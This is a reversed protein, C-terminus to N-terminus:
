RLDPLRLRAQVAFVLVITALVGAASVALYALWRLSRRRLTMAGWVLLRRAGKRHSRPGVGRDVRNGGGIPGHDWKRTPHPAARHPMRTSSAAQAKNAAAGARAENSDPSASSVAASTIASTTSNM